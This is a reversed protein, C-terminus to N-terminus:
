IHGPKKCNFCIIQNKPTEKDEDKTQRPLPKCHKRPKWQWPNQDPWRNKPL